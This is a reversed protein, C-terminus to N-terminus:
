SVVVGLQARSLYSTRTVQQVCVGCEASQVRCERPSYWCWYLLTPSLVLLARCSAIPCRRCVIVGRQGACCGVRVYVIQLDDDQLVGLLGLAPDDPEPQPNHKCFTHLQVPSLPAQDDGTPRKDRHEWSVQQSAMMRGLSSLCAPHVSCQVAGECCSTLNVWCMCGGAMKGRGQGGRAAGAAGRPSLSTRYLGICDGRLYLVTCGGKAHVYVGWGYWRLAQADRATALPVASYVQVYLRRGTSPYNTAM